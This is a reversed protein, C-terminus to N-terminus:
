RDSAPDLRFDIFERGPPVIRKYMHLDFIRADDFDYRFQMGDLLGKALNDLDSRSNSIGFVITLSLKGAPVQMPPLLLQLDRM